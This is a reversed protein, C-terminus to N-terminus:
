TDDLFAGASKNCVRGVAATPKDYCASALNVCVVWGGEECPRSPGRCGCAGASRMAVDVVKRVLRQGSICRSGSRNEVARETENEQEAPCRDHKERECFEVIEAPM